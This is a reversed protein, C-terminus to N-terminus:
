EAPMGSVPGFYAMLRGATIAGAWLILSSIALLKDGLARNPNHNANGVIRRRIVIMNSVALAVLGMKIWFVPNIAKTTADAILLATGSLANIWFGTWMVPFFSGMPALPLDASRGLLRLSVAVSTGVVLGLGVTHLFLIGPYAILLPSERIWTALATNEIWALLEM